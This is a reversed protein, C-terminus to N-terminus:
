RVVEGERAIRRLEASLMPYILDFLDKAHLEVYEQSIQPSKMDRDAGFYSDGVRLEIRLRIM